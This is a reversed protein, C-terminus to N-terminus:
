INFKVLAMVAGDVSADLPLAAQADGEIFRVNAAAMRRRAFELQATSPDVGIVMSPAQRRLLTDTFSGDGCGSDLWALGQPLALWDPSTSAVRGSWRGDDARVGRWDDFAFSTAGAGDASGAGAAGLANPFADKVARVAMSRRQLDRNGIEGRERWM